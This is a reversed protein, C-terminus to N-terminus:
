VEGNEIVFLFLLLAHTSVTLRSLVKRSSSIMFKQVSTMKM